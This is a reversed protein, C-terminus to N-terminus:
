AASTRFDIRDSISRRNLIGGMGPCEFRIEGNRVSNLVSQSSEISADM